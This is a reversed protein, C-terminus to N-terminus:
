HTKFDLHLKANNCMTILFCMNLMTKTKKKKPPPAIHNHKICM